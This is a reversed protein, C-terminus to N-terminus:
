GAGQGIWYELEDLKDKGFFMEDGLFFTPSGYTGRAVTAETNAVLEAKIKPDQTAALIEEGPLGAASMAKAFVEPDDMKAGDSWMAKYGAEVYDAFYPKSKAFVAGRMLTITNVPFNPNMAFDTINHRKCFRIIEQRQHALKGKVDKYTMMPAQNGTAKFVGGLLIPVYEFTAGTRAAIAPIVRHCFFTNPSGFDFHFEVNM